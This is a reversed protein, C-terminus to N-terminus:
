RSVSTHGKATHKCSTLHCLTSKDAAQLLVQQQLTHWLSVAGVLLTYAIQYDQRVAADTSM